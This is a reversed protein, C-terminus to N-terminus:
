FLWLQVSKTCSQKFCSLFAARLPSATPFCSLRLRRRGRLRERRGRSASVVPAHAEEAARQVREFHVPRASDQRKLEQHQPRGRPWAAAGCSGPAGEVRGRASANRGTQQRLQASLSVSLEAIKKSWNEAQKAIFILNMGVLSQIQNTVHSLTEEKFLFFTPLRKIKKSKLNAEFFSM